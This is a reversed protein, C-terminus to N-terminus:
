LLTIMIKHLVSWLMNVLLVPGGAAAVTVVGARDSSLELEFALEAPLARQAPYTGVGGAAAAM